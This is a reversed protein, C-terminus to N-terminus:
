GPASLSRPLGLDPSGLWTSPSEGRGAAELEVRAMELTLGLAQLADVGYAYRDVPAGLGIIVHGCRWDGGFATDPEPRAVLLMVTAGTDGHEFERAAIVDLNLGPTETM